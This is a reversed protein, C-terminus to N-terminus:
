TLRKLGKRLNKLSRIVPGARMDKDTKGALFKAVGNAIKGTLGTSTPPQFLPLDDLEDDDDDIVAYRTVEPHKRLWLLIDDGRSRKPLDPVADAYPIGWYRASFLGAPDHRWDSILVVKARTRAVLRKFIRLLRKDVVYPLARPNRTRQRSFHRKAAERRPGTSPRVFIGTGIPRPRVSPIREALAKRHNAGHIHTSNSWHERPRM